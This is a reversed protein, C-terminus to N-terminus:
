FCSFRNNPTIQYWLSLNNPPFLTNSETEIASIVQKLDLGDQRQKLSIDTFNQVYESINPLALHIEQPQLTHPHFPLVTPHLHFLIGLNLTHLQVSSTLNDDCNALSGPLRRADLIIDCQCPPQM